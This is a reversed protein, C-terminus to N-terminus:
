LSTEAHRAADDLNGAVNDVREDEGFDQIEDDTEARFELNKFNLDTVTTRVSTVGTNLHLCRGRSPKSNMDLGTEVSCGFPNSMRSIASVIFFTRRSLPRIRTTAPGPSTWVPAACYRTLSM